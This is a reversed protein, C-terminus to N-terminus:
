QLDLRYIAQELTMPAHAAIILIAEGDGGALSIPKSTTQDAALELTEIVPRGDVFTILQLHWQQPITATVREFGEASWGEALTEADDYFGIEPVSINDFAIGGYTKILDTIYVFRIAIKQGAYPTLDVSEERWQESRGTYFQGTLASNSPDENEGQMNGAALSHWSRGDDNSVFLYAFDYGSEIDHYVSYNLTATTVETLDVDRTLNMQSYNARNTLWMSEGSAPMIDLLPVLASGNFNITLEQDGVLRYYDAAYQHVSEEVAFPFRDVEVMAVQQLGAVGFRYELPAGAINQLALATQWEKWMDTGSLDSGNSQSISDIAELGSAPSAAFQRYAEQGLRDYIYRNFLYGQGYAPITYDDPWSNLQRDPEALFLNARSVGSSPFGLLDEALMASGEAEWDVDGRDHNDEIMHRLEHTLINLYYDTGFYDVNMVFMERVNSEPNVSAPLTDDASFYGAIRCTTGTANSGEAADCLVLPSANVVHLRPDGDIGPKNELGFIAVSRQYIQEFARTAKSLEEASPRVSGPGTDFWFYANEGVALLEATMSSLTKSDHNLINLQQVTGIPLPQDAVTIAESSGDWGLYLRAVDLDDREPPIGGALADYSAQQSPSISKVEFPDGLEITPPWVPQDLPNSVIETPESAPYAETPIPSEPSNLAPPTETPKGGLTSTATVVPTPTAPPILTDPSNLGPILGCAVTNLALLIIALILRRHWFKM